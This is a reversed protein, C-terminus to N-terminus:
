KECGKGPSGSANEGEWTSVLFRGEFMKYAILSM